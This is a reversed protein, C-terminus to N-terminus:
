GDSKTAIGRVGRRCALSRHRHRLPRPRRGYAFARTTQVHDVSKV